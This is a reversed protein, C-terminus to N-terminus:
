DLHMTKREELRKFARLLQFNLENIKKLNDTGFEEIVDELYQVVITQCALRKEEGAETIRILIRRHDDPSSKREILGEAELGRLMRSVAQPSLGTFEVLDSVALEGNKGCHKMLCYIKEIVPFKCEPGDKLAEEMGRRAVESVRSATIFFDSLVSENEFHEKM